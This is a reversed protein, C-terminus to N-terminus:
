HLRQGPRAGADPSLLFVEGDTGAAVFAFHPGDHLVDAQSIIDGEADAARCGLGGTIAPWLGRVHDSSALLRNEIGDAPGTVAIVDMGLPDEQRADVRGSGHGQSHREAIRMSERARGRQITRKRFPMGRQGLQALNAFELQENRM